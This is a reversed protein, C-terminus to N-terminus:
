LDCRMELRLLAPLRSLQYRWYSKNSRAEKGSCIWYIARGKPSGLALDHWEAHEARDSLDSRTAVANALHGCLIPRPHSAAEQLVSAPMFEVGIWFGSATVLMEQKKECVM